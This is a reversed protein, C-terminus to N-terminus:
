SPPFGTRAPSIEKWHGHPLKRVRPHFWFPERGPRSHTWLTLLLARMCGTLPIKMWCFLFLFCFFLTWIQLWFWQTMIVESIPRSAALIYTCLLPRIWTNWIHNAFNLLAYRGRSSSPKPWRLQKQQKTSPNSSEKRRFSFVKWSKLDCDWLAKQRRGDVSSRNRSRRHKKAAAHISSATKNWYWTLIAWTWTRSTKPGQRQRHPRHGSPRQTSTSKKRTRFSIVSQDCLLNEGEPLRLHAVTHRTLVRGFHITLVKWTATNGQGSGLPSWQLFFNSTWVIENLTKSTTWTKRCLLSKLMPKRPRSQWSSWTELRAALWCFSFRLLPEFLVHAKLDRIDAWNALVWCGVLKRVWYVVHYQSIYLMFESSITYMPCWTFCNHKLGKREHVSAGACLVDNFAVRAHM